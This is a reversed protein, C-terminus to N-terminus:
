SYEYHTHHALSQIHCLSSLSFYALSDQLCESCRQAQGAWAHENHYLTPASLSPATEPSAWGQEELFLPCCIGALSPGLAKKEHRSSDTCLSGEWFRYAKTLTAKAEFLLSYSLKAWPSFYLLYKTSPNWTCLVWPFVSGETLPMYVVGPIFTNMQKPRKSGDTQKESQRHRDKRETERMTERRERWRELGRWREIGSSSQGRERRFGEAEKTTNGLVEAKVPRQSVM